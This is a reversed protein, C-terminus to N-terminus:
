ASWFSRLVRQGDFVGGFMESQGNHVKLCEIFDQPLKVGLASELSAIEHDTAPPNLAALGDPWNTSLWNEFQNWIDKM